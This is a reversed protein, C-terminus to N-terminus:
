YSIFFSFFVQGHPSHKKTISFSLEGTLYDIFFSSFLWCHYLFQAIKPFPVIFLLLFYFRKM